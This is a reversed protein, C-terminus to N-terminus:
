ERGCARGADENKKATRISSILLIRVTSCLDSIKKYTEGDIYETKYLLDLWYGTENAEKLAIDLKYLFDPRAYGYQAERINAGVSTGSRALQRSIVFENKRKLEKTLNIVSVALEFSLESLKDYRM